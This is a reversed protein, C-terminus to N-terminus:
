DGRRGGTAGKHPLQNTGSLDSRPWIKGSRKKKKILFFSSFPPALIGRIRSLLHANGTIVQLQL